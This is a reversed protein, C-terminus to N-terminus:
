YPAALGTRSAKACAACLAVALREAAVGVAFVAALKFLLGLWFARTEADTAQRRLWELLVPFDSLARAVSFVQEGIERTRESVTAILRAGLSEAQPAPAIARRAEILAKLQDVLVKRQAEDEITALLSDLQEAQVAQAVAPAGAGSSLSLVMAVLGALLVRSWGRRVEILNALSGM